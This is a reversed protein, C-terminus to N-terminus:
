AVSAWQDDQEYGSAVLLDGYRQEFQRRIEPTFHNRWDGPMGTRGHSRLNKDGLKRKFVKQFHTRRVARSVARATVPLQLRNILVSQITEAPNAILDEYRVVIDDGGIWSAQLAAIRHLRHNVLQLMGEEESLTDLTERMTDVMRHGAGHSVKLSFYLSVLTDRLDRIVVFRRAGALEAHADVEGRTLFMAAYVRGPEFIHDKLKHDLAVNEGRPACRSRFLRALLHAIWTSGAKAHTVHMVTPVEPDGFIRFHLDIARDVLFDSLSYPQVEYARM